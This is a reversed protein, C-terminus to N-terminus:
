KAERLVGADVYLDLAVTGTGPRRETLLRLGNPLVSRRPSYDVLKSAGNPIPLGVPREPGPPSAARAPGPARAPPPSISKGGSRPLSWGVTLGHDVQYTSAVRRIDDGDVALAARHEAQWARWDDWLAVHGLGAALGALDEQEWRWAAELRH